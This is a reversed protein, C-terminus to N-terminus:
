TNCQIQLVTQLQKVTESPGSSTRQATGLVPLSAHTRDVSMKCEEAFHKSRMSSTASAEVVAGSNVADRGRVPIRLAAASSEYSM